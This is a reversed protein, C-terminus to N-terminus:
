QGQRFLVGMSPMTTTQAAAAAPAQQLPQFTPMQQQPLGTPPAGPISHQPQAQPQMGVQMPMGMPVGMPAGPVGTPADRELPIGWVESQKEVPTPQFKSILDLPKITKLVEPDTVQLPRPNSRNLIQLNTQKGDGSPVAVLDLDVDFLGARRPTMNHAACVRCGLVEEIFNTQNCNPCTYPTADLEDRQQMTLTTNQPDYVMYRCAPNGCVKATCMISGQSGCAACDHRITMDMYKFLQDKHTENMPWPVLNGWKGEFQQQRPDNPPVATWDYYPQGTNQNMVIAGHADTQPLKLWLGYDYWNFAYSSRLSMRNPGKSNDGRAKKQKRAQVDEWFMGCGLCPEAKKKNRFLPGASCICGRKSAGHFHENYIVYELVQEQVTEDDLTYLQKYAGPIFRGIRSHDQPLKFTDKWYPVSTVARQARAAQAQKKRFQDRQSMTGGGFPTVGDAGRPDKGFSM